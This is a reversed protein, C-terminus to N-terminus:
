KRVATWIEQMRIPRMKQKVMRIGPIGLDEELNCYIYCDKYQRMFERMALYVTYNPADPVCKGALVDITEEDIPFGAYLAVPRENLYLVSGSISLEKRLSLAIESIGRDEVNEQGVNHRIKRWQQLIDYADALTDESIMKAQVQYERELHRIKKRLDSYSGGEMSLYDTIKCIYEDSNEERRVDWQDPFQEQLWQVDRSSLYLLMFDPTNMGNQIFSRVSAEEGCPFFWANDGRSCIKVAFFDAQLYLTLKMEKQWLLLSPFAHASLTHGAKARIGDVMPRDELRVPRCNQLITDWM